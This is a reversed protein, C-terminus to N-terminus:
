GQGSSKTGKNNVWEFDLQRRRLDAARLKVRVADGLTFQYGKLLGTLTLQSDDYVYEDPPLFDISVLGECRTEITDVFIGFHTVGSVIADFEEGIRNMMFEVQKYKVSEREASMANREMVSSHKCQDEVEGVQPVPENRLVLDLIRHAIVDPYRRIPSTFHCYKDFALGYHGINKTTYVAKAMSRIALQELVHQEKKGRIREMLTNMSHAIDGPNKLSLSYGFKRAFLAFSQLKAQDPKDHVRYPFPVARKNRTKSDIFEAVTKNALLMFDEILMHADKREKVFLSVPKANEDLRFKV